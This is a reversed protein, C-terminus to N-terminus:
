LSLLTSLWPHAIQICNVPRVAVSALVGKVAVTTCNLARSQSEYRNGKTYKGMSGIVGQVRIKAEWIRTIVARRESDPVRRHISQANEIARPPTSYLNQHNLRWTKEDALWIIDLDGTLWPTGCWSDSTLAEIPNCYAHELLRCTSTVQEPSSTHWNYNPPVIFYRSPGFTVARWYTQNGTIQKEGSSEWRAVLYYGIDM